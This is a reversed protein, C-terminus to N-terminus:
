EDFYADAEDSLLALEADSWGVTEATADPSVEDTRHFSEKRRRGRIVLRIPVEAFPLEERFRNLLFREYNATFLDPENVVLAITPPNTRVQAVYYVKVQKGLKNSPGRMDLLSRVFRNLQGTSVRSGAQEFMEFAVGFLGRLNLGTKASTVAIPAFSLGNLERRVYSEYDEPRIQDGRANKRGKLLDWKNIVIVVPKFARQALMGLQQDVQSIDTTADLMLLVVDARDIARKARDFAYWEVQGHFSKKKRLGATDILMLSKDDMQVHVDVADRTTGAIESVIVRPEGAIKNILSSKGTNRRGIIAVQLDAKPAQSDDDPAPLMEYLADTFDRRFYNNKASVMLPEGFGLAALEHAHPEWKPGDVKTAVIRIQQGEPKAPEIDEAEDGDAREQASAAGSKSGKTKKPRMKGFRGTRLMLAIEEDDRTIGAQADVAFLIVDATAVAHAIQAEIDKRLTALDAGVDDYRENQGTYIGYGGTDTLEVAKDSRNGDPSEIEIVVSVRDRTVGPTPDVIAVKRHALMNLLSSKGVNPRGVIAIRPVPM